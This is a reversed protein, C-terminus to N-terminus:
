EVKTKKIIIPCIDNDKEIAHMLEILAKRTNDSRGGGGGVTTFEVNKVEDQPLFPAGIWVVIDGDDQMYVNLAARTDMDGVRTHPKNRHIEAM